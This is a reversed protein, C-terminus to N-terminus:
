HGWKKRVDDWVASADPRPPADAPIVHGMYMRKGGVLKEFRSGSKDSKATIVARAMFGCM